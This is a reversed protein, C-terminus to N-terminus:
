NNKIIMCQSLPLEIINEEKDIFYENFAKKVGKTHYDHSIIIGNRNLRPYFFELCKKTSDYIDVDLHVFAFKFNQIEIASEPFNGKYIFVDNYKEFRKIVLNYNSKFMAEKFSRDIKKNIKPLGEFTDFLFLKKNGKAKNIIEASFGKFVGVEAFEGKITSQNKAFSYLNFMESPRILLNTNKSLDKIFKVIDDKHYFSILKLEFWFVLKNLLKGFINNRIINSLKIM